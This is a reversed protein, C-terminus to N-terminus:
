EAISNIEFTKVRSPKGQAAQSCHSLGKEVCGSLKTYLGTGLLCKGKQPVTLWKQNARGESPLERELSSVYEDKHRLCQTQLWAGPKIPDKQTRATNAGWSQQSLKKHHWPRHKEHRWLESSLPNKQTSILARWLWVKSPYNKLTITVWVIFDSKQLKGKDPIRALPSQPIQWSSRESTGPM